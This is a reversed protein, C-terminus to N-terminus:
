FPVLVGTEDHAIHLKAGAYNYAIVALGSAMAELTVNGFTETESPFLFVDASAYYSALQEGLRMGAFILDTNETQLTHRLPGDGVIVFKIRDNFCKAGRYAKIAVGLNKEAALRGVYVLALDNDSLGWERRLETSRRQPTFLQSDVAREFVRLNDFGDDQLRARLEENSVLTFETQNHFWRLYGLALSQLWGVGYHKCYHHFNTHFGSVAPIGLGRAARVASWGLPGETAIYVVAPPHDRWTRRLLRQAPVGFQLGHYGPLPLGRVRIADSYSDQRLENSAPQNRQKPHVVSVRHGRAILGKLLNALTLAVGNIEPLYTETVVCIHQPSSSSLQPFPVLAPRPLFSKRQASSLGIPALRGKEDSRDGDCLRDDDM